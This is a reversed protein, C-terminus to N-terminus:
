TPRAALEHGRAASQAAEAERGMAQQVDSLFAWSGAMHRSQAKEMAPTLLVDHAARAQGVQHLAQAITLRFFPVEWPHAQALIRSTAMSRALDHSLRQGFRLLPNASASPAAAGEVLLRLVHRALSTAPRPTCRQLIRDVDGAPFRATLSRVIFYTPLDTGLRFDLLADVVKTELTLDASLVWTASASILSDLFRLVELAEERATAEPRPGAYLTVLTEDEISFEGGSLAWVLCFMYFIKSSHARLRDEADPGSYRAAFDALERARADGPMGWRCMGHFSAATIRDLTKWTLDGDAAFGKLMHYAVRNDPTDKWGQRGKLYADKRHALHTDYVFKMREALLMARFVPLASDHTGRAIQGNPAVSLAPTDVVDCDKLAAGLCEIHHPLLIDDDDTYFIRESQAQEIAHHRHLAGHHVGKPLDLFRVRPDGAAFALAVERVQPTCGDGIVIIEIEQM